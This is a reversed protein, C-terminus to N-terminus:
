PQLSQKTVFRKELQYSLTGVMCGFTNCIVDDIEARGLNYQYQLFEVSSSLLFAFVVATLTSRKCREPLINPLSLGIPFFLFVNMLMSRYMEPQVRAEVFSHFPILIVESTSNSRTFLTIRIIIALIGLLILVNGFKWLMIRQPKYKLLRGLCFWVVLMLFMARVIYDLPLRYVIGYIINSM